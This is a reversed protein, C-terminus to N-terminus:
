QFSLSGSVTRAKILTRGFGMRLGRETRITGVRISGSISGLDFGVSALDSLLDVDINGSVSRFECYDSPRLRRGEITGSVTRADVAGAGSDIDVSGSVSDVLIRGSVHRLRVSGSATRVDITGGELGDVTVSGSSTRVRVDAGRPVRLRIRGREGASFPGESEIWAYLRTGEREQRLRCAPADDWPFDTAIENELAAAASDGPIVAVDLSGSRVEVTRVGPADSFLPPEEETGSACGLVAAFALIVATAAARKM